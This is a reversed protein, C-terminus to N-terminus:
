RNGLSIRATQLATTIQQLLAAQADLQTKLANITTQQAEILVQQEQMGKVLLPVFSGYALGYNDVASEPVHLGSFDFNLDKCAKEVEQALFGTHVRASSERYDQGELRRQHISDPMNQMLHEDFKRTDFQYM